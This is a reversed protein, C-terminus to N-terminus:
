WPVDFDDPSENSARVLQVFQAPPNAHHESCLRVSGALPWLIAWRDCCGRVQCLCEQCYDQDEMVPRGCVEGHEQVHLSQCTEM